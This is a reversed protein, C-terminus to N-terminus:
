HIRCTLITIDDLYPNKGKFNDLAIIIDQHLLNLDQAPNTKFYSHLWATGFEAGTEDLTETLGDTYCFITAPEPLVLEGKQLAPLNSL